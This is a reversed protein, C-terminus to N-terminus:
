RHRLRGGRAARSHHPPPAWPLPQPLPVLHPRAPPPPLPPPPPPLAPFHPGHPPAPPPLVLITLTLWDQFNREMDPRSRTVVIAIVALLIIAGPIWLRHGRPPLSTSSASM